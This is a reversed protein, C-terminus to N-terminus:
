PGARRQDFTASAAANQAADRPAVGTEIFVKMRMLDADMERKPDRGLLSAIAHGIAGGPPNYSLRVMVRTGGNEDDFRVTGAHQVPSGPESRWALMSPAVRETIVSDWEIHTGAPGKVVWHSRTDDLARVEKVLSMFRPFNDVNSWLDFVKERAAAIHITKQIDVGGRGGSVGVLRGIDKNAVARAALGIGAIGLLAGPMSCRRLGYRQARVREALVDDDPTGRRLAHRARAVLGSARHALDRGGADGTERGTNALRVLRDRALAIRRRGQQPDLLFMLLAGLGAAVVLNASRTDSAKDM